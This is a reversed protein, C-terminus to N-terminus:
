SAKRGYVEDILDDVKELHVEVAELRRGATYASHPKDTPIWGSPNQIPHQGCVYSVLDYRECDTDGPILLHRLAEVWKSSISDEYSRLIDILWVLDVPKPNTESVKEHAGAILSTDHGKTCKAECVLSCIIRGQCDRRFALCDDGTRGPIRGPEEKTQRWRELEQFAVNHFRFLFAPVEWDDKGFPSFNEAILGAFIEGFYGKLTIADLQSPYGITPDIINPKLPDLSIGAVKRLHCIADQHAIQVLAKLESVMASRRETKEKLLQHRYRKDASETVSSSLWSSLKSSKLM